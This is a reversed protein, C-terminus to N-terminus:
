GGGGGGGKEGGVGRKGRGWRGIGEVGRWGVGESRRVGRGNGLEGAEWGESEKKAYEGIRASDL